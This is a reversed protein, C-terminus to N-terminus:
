LGWITATLHADPPPLAVHDRRFIKKDWSRKPRRDFIILHGSAEGLGTLYRGLQELGKKETARDKYMKVELAEKQITVGARIPWRRLDPNTAVPWEILLDVRGSGIASERALHGGGNIIRQLWAYLILHPGAEKYHYRELWAESHERYFQQFETLLKIMDLKGDPMVFSQPEFPLVSQLVFSLTRPIVEAYILNAIKVHAPPRTILGLDAVYLLDDNYVDAEPFSGVLIPEIIKRVRQDHLREALSDLHTDRRLILTEKAADVHAAAIAMARDPVDKQVIQRALANVLWPQGQTLEFARGVAEEMWIQGTEETHQHYLAAVEAPSFNALTLSETKINFPSATGLSERDPRIRARYERVARMGILVVSQPFGEPRLQFGNRLQHLISILADDEIADIEDIFVVLPRPSLQAWQCLASFLGGTWERINVFLDEPPRLPEPLQAKVTEQLSSLVSRNAAVVDKSFPRSFEVSFHIATYNGEATLKRALANFLTTKGSQRPTRIVFYNREDILPRLDSLRGEPNRTYHIDSQNPGAVNFTRSM